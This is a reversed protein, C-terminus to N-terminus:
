MEQRRRAGFAVQKGHQHPVPPLQGIALLTVDTAALVPAGVELLHGRESQDLGWTGKESQRFRDFRHRGSDDRGQSPHFLLQRLGQGQEQSDQTNVVNTVM